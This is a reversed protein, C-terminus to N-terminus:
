QMGMEGGSRRRRKAEWWEDLTAWLQKETAKQRVVCEEEAGRM